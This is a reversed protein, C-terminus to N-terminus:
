ILNLARLTARNLKGTPLGNKRQFSTLASVTGPGLKGDIKGPNFGKKSLATQIRFIANEKTLRVKPKSLSQTKKVVKTSKAKTISKPAKYTKVAKYPRYTTKKYVDNSRVKTSSAMKRSYSAKRAKYKKVSKKHSSTKVVKNYKPYKSVYSKKKNHKPANTQCVVQRWVYKASSTKM